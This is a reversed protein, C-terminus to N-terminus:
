SINGSVVYTNASVCTVSCLGRTTLTLSTKNTNVGSIYTTLGTLTIAISGTTNNYLLCNDGAAFNTTTDITLAGTLVRTLGNDAAKLVGTQVSIPTSRIKGTTDSVDGTFIPNALPAAGSVDSVTLTVAGTRGAVSQVADTNDVKDWTTGSSVAWDGIVYGNGSVSAVYYYGKNEASPTPLAVSMDYVGQYELQGLISDPIQALLVKNNTDLDAKKVLLLDAETKTYVVSSDFQTGALALNVAAQISGYGYTFKLSQGDYASSGLQIENGNVVPASFEAIVVNNSDVVFCDWVIGDQPFNTAVAKSSSIACSETIFTLNDTTTKFTLLWRNQNESWEYGAQGGGVLVDAIADNVTVKMGDFKRTIANRDAITGVVKDGDNSIIIAM